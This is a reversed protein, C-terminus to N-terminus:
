PMALPSVRVSVNVYVTLSSLCPAIPREVVVSLMVIVPVFSSGSMETMVALPSLSFFSKVSFIPGSLPKCVSPVKVTSSTSM